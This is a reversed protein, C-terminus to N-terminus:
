GNSVAEVRLEFAGGIGARRALLHNPDVHLGLTLFPADGELRGSAPGDHQYQSQVKGPWCPLGFQSKRHSLRYRYYRNHRNSASCM